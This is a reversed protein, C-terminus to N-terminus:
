NEIKTRIKVNKSYNNDLLYKLLTFIYRSPWAKDIDGQELLESLISPNKSTMGRGTGQKVTKIVIV